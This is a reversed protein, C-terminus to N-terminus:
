LEEELTLRVQYYSPNLQASEFGMIRVNWINGEHDKYACVNESFNVQNVIFDELALYDAKEMYSWQLDWRRRKVGFDYVYRNGAETDVVQQNPILLSRYPFDPDELVVTTTGYTLEM